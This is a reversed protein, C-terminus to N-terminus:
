ELSPCSASPGPLSVDVPCSPSTQKATRQRGRDIVSCTWFSLNPYRIRVSSQHGQHCESGPLGFRTACGPLFVKDIKLRECKGLMAPIPYGPIRHSQPDRSGLEFRPGPGEVPRSSRSNRKSFPWNSPISRRLISRLWFRRIRYYSRTEQQM